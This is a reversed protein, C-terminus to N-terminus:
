FVDDKTLSHESLVKEFYIGLRQFNSKNMLNYEGYLLKFVKTDKVRNTPRYIKQITFACLGDFTAIQYLKVRLNTNRVDIVGMSTKINLRILDKSKM